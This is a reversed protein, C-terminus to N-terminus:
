PGDDDSRPMRPGLTVYLSRADGKAPLGIFRAYWSGAADLGTKIRAALSPGFGALSTAREWSLPRARYHVYRAELAPPGLESVDWGELAYRDASADDTVHERPVVVYVRFRAGEPNVAIGVGHVWADALGHVRLGSGCAALVGDLREGSSGDTRVYLKVSRRAGGHVVGVHLPLGECARALRPVVSEGPPGALKAFTSLVRETDPRHQYFTLRPGEVLTDGAAKFSLELEAQDPEIVASRLEAVDAALTPTLTGSASLFRLISVLPEDAGRTGGLDARSVAMQEDLGAAVLADAARVGEASETGAYRVAWNGVIRYAKVGPAARLVEITSSASGVRVEFRAVDGTSPLREIRPASSALAGRPETRGLRRAPSKALVLADLLVAETVAPCGYLELGGREYSRPDSTFWVDGDHDTDALSAEISTLLSARVIAPGETAELVWLALARELLPASPAVNRAVWTGLREAAGQFATVGFDIAARVVCYAGYNRSPFFFGFPATGAEVEAVKRTVYDLAPECSRGARTLLAAAMATSALEVAAPERRDFDNAYGGRPLAAAEIADLVSAPCREGADCLALWVCATDDVDPRITSERGLFRVRGDPDRARRLAGTARDLVGRAIAAPQADLEPLARHLAHAVFTAGFVADEVADTRGASIRVHPFLGSGLQRRSVREILDAALASGM